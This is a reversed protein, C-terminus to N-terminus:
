INEYTKYIKGVSTAIYVNGNTDITITKINGNLNDGDSLNSIYTAINTTKDIKYLVGKSMTQVSAYIDNNNDTTLVKIDGLVDSIETAINTMSNIRYLRSNSGAYIDNNNGTVLNIIKDKINIEIAHYTTKELKYLKGSGNERTGVYLSDNEGITLCIM